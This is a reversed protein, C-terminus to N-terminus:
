RHAQEKLGLETVGAMSSITEDRTVMGNLEVVQQEVLPRDTWRDKGVKGDGRNGRNRENRHKHEIRGNRTKYSPSGDFLSKKPVM